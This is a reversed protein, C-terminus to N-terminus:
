IIEICEQLADQWHRNKIGFTQTIKTKDIVSFLPRVAPTPYSRTPIPQVDCSNINAIRHITKAFDYWSTVGENSYNYIGGLNHNTKNECIKEAIVVLVKALDRAYTPTGIQDYVVNLNAKEKGLKLMTKVFNNGFSSYVWSTRVIIASPLTNLVAIEGNRKTRAYEGKPECSDTELLPRNINNAHYVYDSSIHIFEVLKKRCIHALKAPADVNIAALLAFVESEAKDVATYAAANICVDPQYKSFLDNLQHEWIYEAVVEKETSNSFDPYYIHAFDLENRTIFIFEHASYDNAIARFETGLQGNAGLILFKM